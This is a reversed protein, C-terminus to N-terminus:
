DRDHSIAAAIKKFLFDKKESGAIRTTAVSIIIIFLLAMDWRCPYACGADVFSMLLDVFSM